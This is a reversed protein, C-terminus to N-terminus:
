RDESARAMLTVALAVEFLGFPIALVLGLGRGPASARGTTLNSM